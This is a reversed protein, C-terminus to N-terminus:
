WGRRMYWLVCFHAALSLCLALMFGPVIGVKQVAFTVTLCFATFAYFGSFMGRLLRITFGGGSSRHSFAALVIGMVPFVSLLGSFKPGLVPSLQTVIVTLLGGALMRAYIEFGSSRAPADARASRPFLRPGLVVAVVIMVVVVAFPPAIAILGLGIVLYAALGIALASYWPARLAAWAYALAFSLWGIGGTLAGAAAASAFQAGQELAVFFLIPGAVVPFGSLWGAIGPGWRRGALTIGGIM